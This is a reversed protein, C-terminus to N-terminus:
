LNLHLNLPEFLKVLEWQEDSWLNMVLQFAVLFLLGLSIVQLFNFRGDTKGLRLIEHFVMLSVFYPGAVLFGFVPFIVLPVILILKISSFISLWFFAGLLTYSIWGLWKNQRFFDIQILWFFVLCILTLFSYELFGNDPFMDRLLMENSAFHFCLIILFSLLIQVCTRQIKRREFSAKTPIFVAAFMVFFLGQLVFVIIGLGMGKSM